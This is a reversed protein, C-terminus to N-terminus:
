VEVGFAAYVEDIEEWESESDRRLAAPIPRPFVLYTPHVRGDGDLGFRTAFGFSACSDGMSSWFHIELVREEEVARQMEDIGLTHGAVPQGSAAVIERVLSWRM